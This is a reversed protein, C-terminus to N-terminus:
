RPQRQWEGAASAAPSPFYDEVIAGQEENWYDSFPKSRDLAGYRYPNIGIVRSAQELLGRRRVNHGHQFQWAHTLEHMLWAADNVRLSFDPLYDDPRFWVEGRPTMAVGRGQYSAYPRNHIRVTATNLAGRFVADALHKEGPTLPRAIATPRSAM